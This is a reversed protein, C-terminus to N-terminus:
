DQRWPLKEAKWGSTKGRQSSNDLDGEFGFAINYSNLYGAKTMEIAAEQSRGGTRCLFFIEANMNDIMKRVDNIFNPNREMTPLLRWEVKIVDKGVPKLNPGGVYHWEAATRVDVLYSDQRDKLIQWAKAPLVDGAYLQTM